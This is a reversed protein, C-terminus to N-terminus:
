KSGEVALAGEWRPHKTAVAEIRRQGFESDGGNDQAQPSFRRAGREMEFSDHHTENGSGGL